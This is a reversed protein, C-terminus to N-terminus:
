TYNILFRELMKPDMRKREKIFMAIARVLKRVTIDRVNPNKKIINFVHKKLEIPANIKYTNGDDGIVHVVIFPLIEEIYDLVEEPEPHLDIYLSRSAIAGEPDIDKIGKNSIFIVSGNFDFRNPVMDENIELRKREDPDTVSAPDYVDPNRKLWTVTRIPKSDLAGKLVNRGEETKFLTDIDDFVLTKGNNRYLQRYVEFPSITGTYSTWKGNSEPGLVDSVAKEVLFTKGIGPGGSIMLSPVTKRAVFKSLEQMSELEEKLNKKDYNVKEEGPVGVVQDPSKELKIKGETPKTAETVPVEVDTAPKVDVAGIEPHKMAQVIAPLFRAASVDQDFTVRYDPHELVSDLGTPTKWFDISSVHNEDTEGTKWNIRFARMDPLVYM